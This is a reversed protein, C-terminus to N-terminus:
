SQTPKSLVDSTVPTQFAAIRKDEPATSVKLAALRSPIDVGKAASKLPAQWMSPPATWLSLTAPESDTAPQPDSNTPRESM